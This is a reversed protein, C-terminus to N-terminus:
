DPSLSGTVDLQNGNSLNQEKSSSLCPLTSQLEFIVSLTFRVFNTKNHVCLSHMLVGYIAISAQWLRQSLGNLLNLVDYM